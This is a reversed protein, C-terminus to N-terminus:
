IYEKSGTLLNQIVNLFEKEVDGDYEEGFSSKITNQTYGMASAMRMCITKFEHINLDNDIEFSIKTAERNYIDNNTYELKAMTLLIITIPIGNIYEEAKKYKVFVTEGASSQLMVRENRSPEKKSQVTETYARSKDTIDIGDIADIARQVLVAELLGADEMLHNLSEWKNTENTAKFEVRGLNDTDVILYPYRITKRVKNAKNSDKEFYVLLNDPKEVIIPNVLVLDDEGILRVSVIRKELGIDNSTFVVGKLKSTRDKYFEIDDNVIPSPNILKVKM